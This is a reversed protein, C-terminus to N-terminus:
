FDTSWSLTGMITYKDYTSIELTSTNKEVSAAFIGHLKETLPSSLSTSLNYNTDKRHLESKDFNSQAVSLVNTWSSKQLVPKLYGISLSLKNFANNAAPSQNSLISWNFLLAQTKKPDYFWINNNGLTLKNADATGTSEIKSDEGRWELRITTFYDDRVIFTQDTTVLKTNMTNERPGTGDANLYLSEYGPAISLLYPKSLLKGKWKYPLKIGSIVPDALQLTANPKFQNSVSYLDTYSVQAELEHSQNYIIRYNLGANLLGRFGAKDTASSSSSNSVLLINSDYMLGTNVSATFRNQLKAQFQEINAIQEIYNDAQEDLQPDDSTDLTKEFAVKALKYDERSFLIVGSFFSASPTLTKDEVRNVISFEKLASDFEKLKMHCLGQYFAKERGNISAENAIDFAVLAENYKQNKYLTAGYQFYYRTESPDLEISKRFRDEAEVYKQDQFFQLAEASLKKALESRRAREAAALQEQAKKLEEQKLKADEEQKKRLAEREEAEKALRLQEAALAERRAQELASADVVPKAPTNLESNNNSLALGQKYSQYADLAQQNSTYVTLKQLNKENRLLYPKRPLTGDKILQELNEPPGKKALEQPPAYIDAQFAVDPSWNIFFKGLFKGSNVNDETLLAKVTKNTLRDRLILIATDKTNPDKNWAPYHYEIQLPHHIEYSSDPQTSSKTPTQALEPTRPQANPTSTSAATSTSKAKNAASTVSTMGLLLTSLLLMSSNRRQKVFPM